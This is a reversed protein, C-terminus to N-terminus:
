FANLKTIGVLSKMNRVVNSVDQMRSRTTIRVNSTREREAMFEQVIMDKEETSLAHYEDRHAEQIELM